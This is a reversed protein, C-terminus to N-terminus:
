GPRCGQFAGTTVEWLRLSGDQGGTALWQGGPHPALCRVQPRPVGLTRPPPALDATPSWVLPTLLLGPLRIHQASRASPLSWWCEGKSPLQRPPLGLGKGSLCTSNQCQWRGVCAADRGGSQFRCFRSLCLRLEPGLHSPILPATPGRLLHITGGGRVKGVHGSFRIALRTPFPQLDQPKPLKPVLSQPNVHLRKKRVQPPPDTV